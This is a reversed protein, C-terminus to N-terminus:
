RPADGRRFEATLEDLKQKLGADLKFECATLTDNLQEARSAGIIASTVAPNALVWAIAVTTLNLGADSVVKRLEEIKAFSQREM